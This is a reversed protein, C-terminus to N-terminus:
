DEADCGDEWMEGNLTDRDVGRGRCELDEVSLYDKGITKLTKKGLHMKSQPDFCM